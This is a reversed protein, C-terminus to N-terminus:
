DITLTLRFQPAFEESDSDLHNKWGDALTERQGTAHHFPQITGLPFFGSNPLITNKMTDLERIGTYQHEGLYERLDESRKNCVLKHWPFGISPHLEGFHPYLWKWVVRGDKQRFKRKQYYNAFLYEAPVFTCGWEEANQMESALSPLVNYFLYFPVAGNEEAYDILHEIQRGHELKYYKGNRNIKKAQVVAYFEVDEAPFRILLELDNGNRAENLAEDIQINLNPYQHAFAQFTFVLNQTLTTEYLSRASRSYAFALRNWNEIAILKFLNCLNPDGNLRYRATTFETFDM